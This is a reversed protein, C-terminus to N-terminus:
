PQVTNIARVFVAITADVVSRRAALAAHDIADAARVAAANAHLCPRSWCRSWATDRVACVTQQACYASDHDTIVPMIEIQVALDDWGRERLAVVTADRSMAFTGRVLVQCRAWATAAPVRTGALQPILPRLLQREATLLRDNLTRGFAALVPCTCAPRDTHDEGAFWAVAELLCVGDTRRIHSGRDLIVALPDFSTPTLM